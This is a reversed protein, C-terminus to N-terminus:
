GLLQFRNWFRVGVTVQVSEPTSTCQMHLLLTYFEQGSTIALAILISSTLPSGNDLTLYCGM